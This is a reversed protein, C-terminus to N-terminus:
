WSRRVEDWAKCSKTRCVHQRRLSEYLLVCGPQATSDLVCQCKCLSSKCVGEERYKFLSLLTLRVMGKPGLTTKVLDAIAM